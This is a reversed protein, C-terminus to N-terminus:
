KNQYQVWEQVNSINNGSPYTTSMLGTTTKQHVFVKRYDTYTQKYVNFRFWWWSGDTKNRRDCFYENATTGESDTKGYNKTSEFAAFNGYYYGATVNGKQPM